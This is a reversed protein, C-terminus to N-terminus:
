INKLMQRVVSYKKFYRGGEHETFNYDKTLKVGIVNYSVFIVHKTPDPKYVIKRAEDYNHIDKLLGFM